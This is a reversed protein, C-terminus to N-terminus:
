PRPPLDGAPAEPPRRVTVPEPVRTAPGLPIPAIPALGPQQTGAPAPSQVPPLPSPAGPPLPDGPPGKLGSNPRVVGTLGLSEPRRAVKDAFVELDRVVKDLRAVVRGVNVVTDNLNNFLSPDSLAKQVSGGGGTTASTIVGRLEGVAKNAQSAASAVDKAAQDVNQVVGPAADAVTKTAREANAVTRNAGAVAPELQTLRATLQQVAKDSQDVLLAALRITRVLDESATQTNKLTAAAAKRNDPNLLDNASDSTRRVSQLTAKLEPGSDKLLARLDDAAPRIAQLLDVIEKLAQRVTVADDGPAANSGILEQVKLNTTRLEPVFERGGRALGAIEDVAKEVKPVAAEFRQISTVVRAVSDRADPLADSATKLVSGPSIPTVGPISSGPPLPEGAPARGGNAGTKPVFDLTTDGSLLGRSITADESERPRFKKDLEISVKVQGSEEDLDLRTVEGVRVGSKRVPTGVGVGPAEPFLITYKTRNAFVTPAGGFLVVLLSLTLLGLAVFAGLRLRTARDPM